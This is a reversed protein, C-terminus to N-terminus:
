PKLAGEVAELAKRTLVLEDHKLVDYVNLGVPPLVDAKQLNSLSKRLKFNEEDVFLPRKWGFSEIIETVKKTKIERLEFNELVTIQGDKLKMSLASRLAGKRMKAPPRYGYDRPHPGFVTGGGRMTPSSIMGHRARGTGKQRYLKRTSHKIDRRTKTQHTGQRRSALQARVVDYFLNPNVEVGFVEESLDVSGVENKELDFVTIESM